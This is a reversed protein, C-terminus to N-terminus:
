PARISRASQANMLVGVSTSGSTPLETPTSIVGEARGPTWGSSGLADFSRDAARGRSPRLSGSGRDNNNALNALAM